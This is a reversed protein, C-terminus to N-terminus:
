KQKKVVVKIIQGAQLMKNGLLDNDKRVDYVFEEFCRVENKDYHHQCIEWVTDGYGAMVDYRVVEVPRNTFSPAFVIAAAVAMIFLYKKM